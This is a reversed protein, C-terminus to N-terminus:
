APSTEAATTNKKRPKTASKEKTTAPPELPLEGQLSVIELRVKTGILESLAGIQAGNSVATARMTMGGASYTFGDVTAENLSAQIEAGFRLNVRRQVFRHEFRIAGFHNAHEELFKVVDAVEMDLLDSLVPNFEISDTILLHVYVRLQLEADKGKTRKKSQVVRAVHAVISDHVFDM